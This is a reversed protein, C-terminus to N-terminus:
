NIDSNNRAVFTVGSLKEVVRELAAAARALNPQLVQWETQSPYPARSLEEFTLRIKDLINTFKKLEEETM